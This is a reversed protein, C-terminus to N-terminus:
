ATQVLPERIPPNEVVAYVCVRRLQDLDRIELDNWAYRFIYTNGIAADVWKEATTHLDEKKEKPVHSNNVRRLDEILKAQVLSRDSMPMNYLTERNPCWGCGNCNKPCPLVPKKGATLIVRATCYDDTCDSVIQNILDRRDDEDILSEIEM